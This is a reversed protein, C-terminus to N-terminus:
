LRAVFYETFVCVRAMVCHGLTFYPFRWHKASLYAVGELPFPKYYCYYYYNPITLTSTITTASAIAIIVIIIVLSARSIIFLILM